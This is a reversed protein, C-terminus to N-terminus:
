SSMIFLVVICLVSSAIAMPATVCEAKAASSFFSSVMTTWDVAPLSKLGPPSWSSGAKKSTYSIINFPVDMANQQGLMGMRGGNAVQGEFFAPLLQDGGPKFDSGATSQVVIT